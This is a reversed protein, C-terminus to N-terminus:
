NTHVTSVKSLRLPAGDDLRRIRMNLFDDQYKQILGEDAFSFYENGGIIIHDLVKIQIINGIFVLDRTLQKDGRSPTTDGSPHNHVFIVAASGHKIASDVIERPRIPISELTGEFLDVTDIIQNRSNLYIARFVEKKLDRMSYYLYDFVEKSSKYFPQEIIKKKLVEAPLERLVKISFISRLTLGVRELEQPSAALFGSLDKFKALCEKALKRCERRPLCLSLFLELIERDSFGEFGSRIFRGQLPTLQRESTAPVTTEQNKGARKFKTIYLCHEIVQIVEGETNFIPYAHVEVNRARSDEGCHIHEVVVPKRTKKVEEVTCLLGVRGCPEDRKHMTVYCTLNGLLNGIKTAANAMKITYDNADVVYVPYALSNLIDLIDESLRNQQLIKEGARNRESLDHQLRIYEASGTFTWSGYWRILVNQHNQVVDIIEGFGCKDLSYTCIALMHCNGIANNVEEEYTIFNRWDEKELWATSGTVRMGDYGTAQSQELKDIWANLVRQLNFAGHKLYWETHPIIEIQGEKLYQAFDPVAKRMAEKVEKESLPESTIWVCFENNELGAKFYPVLIDLLDQKTDYFLCFHTGWPVVGVFSIGSERTERKDSVGMSM